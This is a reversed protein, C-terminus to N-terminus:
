PILKGWSELHSRTTVISNRAGKRERGQLAHTSIIAEISLTPNPGQTLPDLPQRLVSSLLLGELLTHLYHEQNEGSLQFLPETLGARVWELM